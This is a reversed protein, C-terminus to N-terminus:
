DEGYIVDGERLHQDLDCLSAGDEVLMSLVDAPVDSLDHTHDIATVAPRHIHRDLLAQLAEAPFLGVQLTAEDPIRAEEAPAGDYVCHDCGDCKGCRRLLHEYMDNVLGCLGSITHVLELATMKERMVVLAGDRAHIKFNLPTKLGCVEFLETPLEISGPRLIAYCTMDTKM